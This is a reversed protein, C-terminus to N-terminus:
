RRLVVFIAVLAIVGIGVYLLIKSDGTAGQAESTSTGGVSAGAGFNVSGFAAKNTGGSSIKSSIEGSYGAGAGSAIPGGAGGGYLSSLVGLAETASETGSSNGQAM